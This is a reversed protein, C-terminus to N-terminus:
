LIISKTEMYSCHKDIILGTQVNRLAHVHGTTIHAPCNSSLHTYWACQMAVHVVGVLTAITQLVVTLRYSSSAISDNQKQTLSVSCM